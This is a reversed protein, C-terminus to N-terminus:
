ESQFPRVEVRGQCAASGEKAWQLAEDLDDAEIVWFGGLFEKAESFPGDTVTPKDGTADVVTASSIPELGGAFVWKGAARVKDNFKEVDAFMQQIAEDSPMEDDVSGPVSLLYQAM